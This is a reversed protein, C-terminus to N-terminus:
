KRTNHQLQFDFCLFLFKRKKSQTLTLISKWHLARSFTKLNFIVSCALSSSFFSFNPATFPSNSSAIVVTLCTSWCSSSCSVSFLLISLLTRSALTLLLLPYKIYDCPRKAWVLNSEVLFSIVLTCLSLVAYM